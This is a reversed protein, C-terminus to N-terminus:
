FVACAYLATIVAQETIEYLIYVCLLEPRDAVACINTSGMLVFMTSSNLMNKAHASQQETLAAALRCTIM